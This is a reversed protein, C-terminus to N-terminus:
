QGQWIITRKHKRHKKVTDSNQSLVDIISTSKNMESAGKTHPLIQDVEITKTNLISKWNYTM